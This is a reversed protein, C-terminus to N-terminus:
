RKFEGFIDYDYTIKYKEELLGNYLVHAFCKKRMEETSWDVGDFSQPIVSKDTFGM